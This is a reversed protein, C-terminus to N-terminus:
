RADYIALLRAKDSYNYGALYDLVTEGDVDKINLDAGHELLLKMREYSYTYFLITRGESDQINPNMHNDLLLKFVSFSPNYEPHLM